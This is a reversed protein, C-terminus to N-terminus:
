RRPPPHRDHAARAAVVRRQPGGAGVVAGARGPRDPRRPGPRVACYRRSAAPLLPCAHRVRAGPARHRPRDSRVRGARADFGSIDRGLLLEPEWGHYRGERLFQDPRWRRPAGRGAHAADRRGRDCRHARGSHEGRRDRPTDRRRPRRQEGRGHVGVRRTDGGTEPHRRRPRRAAPRRRRRLGRTACLRGPGAPRPHRPCCRSRAPRPSSRWGPRRSRRPSSSRM